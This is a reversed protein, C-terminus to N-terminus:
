AAEGERTDNRAPFPVVFGVGHEMMGASPWKSRRPDLSALARLALSAERESVLVSNTTKYEPKQDRVPTRAPRKVERGLYLIVM